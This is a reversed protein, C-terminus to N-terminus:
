SGDLEETLSTLRSSLIDIAERLEDAEMQKATTLNTRAAILDSQLTDLVATQAHIRDRVMQVTAEADLRANNAAEIDQAVAGIRTPRSPTLTSLPISAHTLPTAPVPVATSEGLPTAAIPVPTSEELDTPDVPAEEVNEMPTDTNEEFMHRHRTLHLFFLM